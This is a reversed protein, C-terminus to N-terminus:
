SDRSNGTYGHESIDLGLAEDLASVRLPFFKNVVSFIIWAIGFTFLWCIFVGFAQIQIQDIRSLGTGLSDLDSFIGVAITGWIGAALHVPIAGIADDIKFIRLLQTVMYMALAGIAGIIVSEFTTVWVACATIAVLGALFGSCILFVNFIKLRFYSIAMAMIMGASGGVLTNVIVGPVDENIALTSGGNFGFWGLILILTGIMVLVPNSVPMPNVTGDASFRGARPGIILLIALGIWGGTSHVVSGGAFDKFGLAELWGFSMGFFASGWVWHGFVPYIFLSTVLAIVIYAGFKIREAIAGSIITVATSVFVANFIFFTPRWPDGSSLDIPLLTQGILGNESYGYMIGFGLAWFGFFAFGCDILNKMAVNVANKQQTIGAELCLFGTQMFFVLVSCTLVWLIDNMNSM